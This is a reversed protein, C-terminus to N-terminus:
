SLNGELEKLMSTLSSNTETMNAVEEKLEDVERKRTALLEELALHQGESEAKERTATEDYAAKLM